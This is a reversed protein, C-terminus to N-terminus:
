KVEEAKEKMVKGCVCTKLAKVATENSINTHISFEFGCECVMQSSINKNFSIIFTNFDPFREVQPLFHFVNERPGIIVCKIKTGLAIGLEVHRGGLSSTPGPQETFSLVIEANLLDELDNAAFKSFERVKLDESWDADNIQHDGNIWRSTVIHGASVLVDRIIQMEPYRNYRAALYIKM